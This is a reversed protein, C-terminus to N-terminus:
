HLQPAPQIREENLHVNIKYPDPSLQKGGLDHHSKKSDDDREIKKQNLMIKKPFGTGV